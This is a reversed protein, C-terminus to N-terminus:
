LIKLHKLPSEHPTKAQLLFQLFLHVKTTMRINLTNQNLFFFFTM